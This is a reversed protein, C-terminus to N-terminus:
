YSKVIEAERGTLNGTISEASNIKIKEKEEGKRGPQRERAM